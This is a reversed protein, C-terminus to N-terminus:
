LVGYITKVVHHCRWLLTTRFTVVTQKFMLVNFYFKLRELSLQFDCYKWNQVFSGYTRLNAHAHTPTNSWYICHAVFFIALIAQQDNISAFSILTSMWERLM